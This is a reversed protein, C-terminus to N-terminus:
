LPQRGSISRSVTVSDAYELDSGVPIGLAIRSVKVGLPKLLKSLYLATSEGEITPNTAAIVEQITGPRLRELLNKLKLDEPGVGEMPSIAGHLVHYLGRYEGSKEITMVNFPDEVVCVVGQDRQPDQCISCPDLHTFNNCLSCLLLNSKLDELARALRECGEAPKRILHFVIRQASKPGIGPLKKFEDILQRVPDGDSVAM